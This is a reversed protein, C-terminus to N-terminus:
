TEPGLDGLGYRRLKVYLSQRSLGLMEAASARNDGVLELAAEICLREILDTTERVLNKLPVQGVLGTMQKVSRPLGSDGHLDNIARRGAPRITLGYCPSEQDAVHVASIEVDETLGYEGRVVTEFHKSTGHEATTAFLSEIEVTSRGLWREISQGRAQEDTALQALELFASNAALIKRDEGVVIFGDPMRDVVRKLTESPEGEDITASETGAALVPVLRVLVYSSSDQRFLSGSIMADAGSGLLTVRVPDTRNGSRIQEMLSRLAASSSPKVVDFLTKGFKRRAPQAFLGEAAPNVEIMKATQAEVIVVAESASQFLLRYRTEAVRLRAYEREMSQQAQVLRQQLMSMSRLERGVALIRGASGLALASYRVPLDPGNASPHNVQRWRPAAKSTADRIMEEIKTRSEITVTDVWPKGVLSSFLEERALTDDAVSYDRVVGDRDIVLAVDSTSSILKAAFDGDLSGITKKLSKLPKV